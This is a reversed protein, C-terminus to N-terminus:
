VHQAQGLMEVYVFEMLASEMGVVNLLEVVVRTVQFYKKTIFFYHSIEKMSCAGCDM